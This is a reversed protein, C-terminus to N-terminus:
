RNRRIPLKEETYYPHKGEKAYEQVLSAVQDTGIGTWLCELVAERLHRKAIEKGEQQAMKVAHPSVIAGIGRRCVVYGFLELERYSKAITNPNSELLESMERVPPLVDGPRLKGSAIGFLIQNKIQEFVPISSRFNVHFEFKKDEM